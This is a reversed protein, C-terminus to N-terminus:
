VHKRFPPVVDGVSQNYSVYVRIALHVILLVVCAIAAMITANNLLDAFLTFILYIQDANYARYM